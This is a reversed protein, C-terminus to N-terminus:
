HTVSLYSSQICVVVTVPFSKLFSHTFIYAFKWFNGSLNSYIEPFKRDSIEWSVVRFLCLFLHDYLWYLIKGSLVFYCIKLESSTTLSRFARQWTVHCRLHDVISYSMHQRNKLQSNLPNQSLANLLLLCNWVRCLLYLCLVFCFLM